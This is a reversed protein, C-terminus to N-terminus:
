GAYVADPSSSAGETIAHLALAGSTVYDDHAHKRDPAKLKMKNAVFVREVDLHQEIFHDRARFWQRRREESIKLPPDKAYFLRGHQAERMYRKYILDNTEVTLKLGEVGCIGRCANRQDEVIADQQGTADSYMVSLPKHPKLFAATLEAQEQYDNGQLELWDLIIKDAGMREMVTVVTFDVDKANDVGVGRLNVPDSRYERPMTALLNTFPKSREIIWECGLQTRFEDSEEGMQKMKMLAYQKYDPRYHSCIKWDMSFPYALKLTRERYYNNVVEQSPNGALVLIQELREGEAMPFIIEKMTSEDIEEVQELFLLRFGAGKPHASPDASIARIQAEAGSSDHLVFDPTKRGDGLVSTIGMTLQLWPEIKAVNDKLRQRTVMVGQETRAPNVLAIPFNEQVRHIYYCAIALATDVLMETKGSRRPWEMILESNGGVIAARIIATSVHTQYDYFTTGLQRLLMRRFGVLELVAQDIKITRTQSSVRAGEYDRM